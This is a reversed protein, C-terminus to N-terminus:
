EGSGGLAERLIEAKIYDRTINSIYKQIDKIELDYEVFGQTEEKIVDNLVWKIINGMMKIELRGGNNLDAVEQIGQNLRCVPTVKEALEQKVQELPDKVKPQKEKTGKSHSEGKVKFIYRQNNNYGVFVGGEGVGIYGLERAVPCEKDVKLIYENIKNYAEKPDNFDIVFKKTEFDFLNYIGKEPDTFKEIIEKPNKEWSGETTDEDYNVSTYKVGFVFFSKKLLKNIGTNKQIGPGAFEGMLSVEIISGDRRISNEFLDNLKETFYDENKQVFMAFGANDKMPTIKSGKSYVKLFIGDYAVRAFTGHLKVTSKFEIEPLPLTEDTIVTGDVETRIYYTERKIDFVTDEFKGISTMNAM